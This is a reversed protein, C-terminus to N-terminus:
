VKGRLMLSAFTKSQHNMNPKKNSILTTQITRCECMLSDFDGREWLELRRKLCLSHEKSRSKFRPKQLLVAPMIMVLKLAIDSLNISTCNWADIIRTIEKVFAKGAAGSPLMFVNKRWFVIEEYISNVIQKLDNNSHNGWIRTPQPLTSSTSATPITAVNVPPSENAPHKRSCCNLHLTRGRETGFCRECLHCPFSQDRPETTQSM